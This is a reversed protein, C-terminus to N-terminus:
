PQQGKIAVVKKVGSVASTITGPESELSLTSFRGSSLYQEAVWEPDFADSCAVELEFEFEIRLIKM